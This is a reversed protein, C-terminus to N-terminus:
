EGAQEADIAACLADLAAAYDPYPITEAEGLLYRAINAHDTM